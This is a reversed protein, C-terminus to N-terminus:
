TIGFLTERIYGRTSVVRRTTEVNIILYFVGTTISWRLSLGAFCFPEKPSDLTRTFSKRRSRVMARSVEQLEGPRAVEVGSIGVGVEAGVADGVAVMGSTIRNSGESM